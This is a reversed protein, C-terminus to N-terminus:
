EAGVQALLQTSGAIDAFLVSVQRLRPGPPPAPAAQAAPAIASAAAPAADAAAQDAAEAHSQLAAVAADVAADGLVGRQAQLAAITALLASTPAM